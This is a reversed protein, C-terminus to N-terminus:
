VRPLRRGGARGGPGSCLVAAQAEASQRGHQSVQRRLYDPAMRRAFEAILLADLRGDLLGGRPGFILNTVEPPHGLGRWFEVAAESKPDKDKGPLGFKGKWTVPSLRQWDAGVFELGLALAGTQMGFRYAREPENDPRTTNYELAVGCDNTIVGTLIRILSRYDLENRGETNVPMDFVNWFDGDASCHALAGSFGPDIGAYYRHTRTFPNM